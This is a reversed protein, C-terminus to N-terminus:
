RPGSGFIPLMSTLVGDRRVIGHFIGALAHLGVLAMLVTAGKEHIDHLLNVAGKNRAFLAPIEGFFLPFATGRLVSQLLGTVPMLLLFTYLVAQMAWAAARQPPAMTKPLAPATGFMAKWGLRVVTLFWILVGLSRHVLLARAAAAGDQAAAHSSATWYMGVLLLATTWHFIISTADYRHTSVSQDQLDDILTSYLM